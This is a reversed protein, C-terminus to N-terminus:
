RACVFFLPPACVGADRLCILAPARHVLLRGREQSVLRVLPGGRDRVRGRVKEAGEEQGGVHPVKSRARRRCLSSLTIPCIDEEGGAAWERGGRRGALWRVVVVVTPSARACTGPCTGPCRLARWSAHTLKTHERVAREGERRPVDELVRSGGRVFGGEEVGGGGRMGCGSWRWGRSCRRTSCRPRCAGRRGGRAPAWASPRRRGAGRQSRSARACTTPGSATSATSSGASPVQKRWRSGSRM